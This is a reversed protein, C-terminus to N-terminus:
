KFDNFRQLDIDPLLRAGNPSFPTVGDFLTFIKYMKPLRKTGTIGVIVLKVLGNAPSTSDGHLLRVV